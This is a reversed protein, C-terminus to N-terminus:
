FDNLRMVRFFASSRHSVLSAFVSIVGAAIPGNRLRMFLSQELAAVAM